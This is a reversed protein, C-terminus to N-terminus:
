CPPNKKKFSRLALRPPPAPRPPVTPGGRDAACTAVHPLLRFFFFSSLSPTTRVRRPWSPPVQKKVLIVPLPRITPDSRTSFVDKTDRQHTPQPQGRGCAALLITTNLTHPPPFFPTCHRHPATPTTPPSFFCLLFFFFHPPCGGTRGSPPMPPPPTARGLPGLRTFPFLLFFHYYFFFFNNQPFFAARSVKPRVAFVFLVPERCPLRFGPRLGFSFPPTCVLPPPRPLISFSFFQTSKQNRGITPGLTPARPAGVVVLFTQTTTQTGNTKTHPLLSGFSSLGV